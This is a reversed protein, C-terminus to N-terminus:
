SEAKEYRRHSGLNEIDGTEKRTLTFQLLSAECYFKRKVQKEEIKSPPVELKLRYIRQNQLKM